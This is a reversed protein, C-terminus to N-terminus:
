RSLLPETAIVSLVTDPLLDPSPPPPMWFAAVLTVNVRRCIVPLRAVRPPPPMSLRPLPAKVMMSVVTLPFVASFPPPKALAASPLVRTSRERKQSLRATTPRFSSVPRPPPM